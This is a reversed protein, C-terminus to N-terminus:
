QCTLWNKPNSYLIKQIDEDAIGRNRMQPIINLIIHSFGHGGFKMLRHKTHIDHAIVIRDGYGEQILLRLFDIRQADSLMATKVDQQYYSVEIGFLDYECYSGKSAFELLDEKTLLTRDLHSMVSYKVKGGAEQFIRLIEEPAKPDRGPHIIVPAGTEQQVTATAVLSRREFDELPWTCGVEGIVGCKVNTGDMGDLIDRRMLEAMSEVSMNLTSQSQSSSVYFGTGAIVNVGTEKSVELLHQAHDPARLGVSCNEVVTGGGYKKFFHMEEKVATRVAQDLFNMNEQFCYPYQRIWGLNEMKMTLNEMCKLSSPLPKTFVCEQLDHLLHEHTLTLGLNESDIQGLVTQVKM